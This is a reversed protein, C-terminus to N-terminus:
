LIGLNMIIPNVQAKQCTLKPVPVSYDPMLCIPTYECSSLLEEELFQKKYCNERIMSSVM